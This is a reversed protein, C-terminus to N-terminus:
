FLLLAGTYEEEFQAEPSYQGSGVINGDQSM